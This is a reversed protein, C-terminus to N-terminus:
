GAYPVSNCGHGHCRRSPRPRARPPSREQGAATPRTPRRVPTVAAARRILGVLRAIADQRNREQSRFRGAQIVLVGEATLHRGALRVLRERVTAPLATTQQVDFRLQVATAVKNVHQGGPGGARVFSFALEGDDITIDPTVVLM